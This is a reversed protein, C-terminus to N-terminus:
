CRNIGLFSKFAVQAFPKLDPIYFLSNLTTELSAEPVFQLHQSITAIALARYNESLQHSAGQEFLCVVQNASLGDIPNSVRMRNM